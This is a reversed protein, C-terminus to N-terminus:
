VRPRHKADSEQRPSNPGNEPRHRARVVKIIRAVAKTASEHEWVRVVRWGARKLKRDTDADRRRNTKLKALWWAANAKPFSRHKPCFHWFCGDVFVAVKPGAFVIDARRSIGPLVRRDVHFRLGYAHLGRRIALEPATDRQRAAQMRRLAEPSSAQPTRSTM